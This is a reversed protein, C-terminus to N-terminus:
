IVRFGFEQGADVRDHLLHARRRVCKAGGAKGARPHQDAFGVHRVDGRQGLLIPARLLWLKLQGHVCLQAHEVYQIHGLEAGPEHVGLGAEVAVRRQEDKVIM